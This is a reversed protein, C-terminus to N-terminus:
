YTSRAETLMNAKVEAETELDLIQKERQALLNSHKRRSDTDLVDLQKELDQIVIDRKEIVYSM